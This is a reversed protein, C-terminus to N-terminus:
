NSQATSQNFFIVQLTENLRNNSNHSLQLHSSHYSSMQGLLRLSWTSIIPAWGKPNWKILSSLAEEILSVADHKETLKKKIAPNDANQAQNQILHLNISEDVVQCFYYLVAERAAPFNKLLSTATKVVETTDVENSGRGRSSGSASSPVGSVGNLFNRLDVLVGGSTQAMRIEVAAIICLM